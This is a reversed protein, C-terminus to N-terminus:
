VCRVTVFYPVALVRRMVSLMDSQLKVSMRNDLRNKLLATEEEEGVTVGRTSHSSVARRM